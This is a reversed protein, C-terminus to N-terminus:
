ESEETGRTEFFRGHEPHKKMFWRALGASLNNNIKFDRNGREIVEHWRLRHFLARASYRTIGAGIVELAYHEFLAAIEAPCEKPPEIARMPPSLAFALQEILIM